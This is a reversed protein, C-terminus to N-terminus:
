PTQPLVRQLATGAVLDDDVEPQSSRHSDANSIVRQDPVTFRGRQHRAVARDVPQAPRAKIGVRAKRRQEAARVVTAPPDRRLRLLESDRAAIAVVGQDELRAEFGLLAGSPQDVEHRKAVAGGIQHPEHDAFGPLEDHAHLQHDAELVATDYGQTVRSGSWVSRAMAPGSM